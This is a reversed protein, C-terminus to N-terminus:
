VSFFDLSRVSSPVFFLYIFKHSSVRCTDILESTFFQREQCVRREWEAQHIEVRGPRHTGLAPLVQLLNAVEPLIRNGQCGTKGRKEVRRQIIKSDKSSDSAVLNVKPPSIKVAVAGSSKPLAPSTTAVM